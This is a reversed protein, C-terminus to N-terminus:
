DSIVGRLLPWEIEIRCGQGPESHARIRGELKQSVTAQAIFLGLGSRGLGFQTTVYPDFVRPLLTPSIGRGQDIVSLRMREANHGTSHAALLEAVIRVEGAEGEAYAHREINQFLQLLVETLVRPRVRMRAPVQLQLRLPTGPRVARDWAARLLLSADVEQPLETEEALELHKFTEVLALAREVNRSSLEAASACAELEGLLRSRSVAGGSLQGQLSKSLEAMTSSATLASGLPTNLEHAMGALLHGLTALKSSEILEMQLERQLELAEQLAANKLSLEHGHQEARLQLSRAHELEIMQLQATKDRQMAERLEAQGLDKARQLSAYAAEARGCALQWPALQELRSVLQRRMSWRESDAIVREMLAVASEFQGEAALCSAEAAWVEKEIRAAGAGAQRLHKQAGALCARAEGPLGRQLLLESLGAASNCAAIWRRQEVATQLGQQLAVLEQEPEGLRRHAVSVSVFLDVWRGRDGCAQYLQLAENMSQLAPRFQQQASLAQGLVRAFHAQEIAPAAADVRKSLRELLALAEPLRGFRLHMRCRLALMPVCVEAGFGQELWPMVADLVAEIQESRWTEGLMDGLHMALEVAFDSPGEKLVQEFLQRTPEILAEARCPETQYRLQEAQLWSRRADASFPLSPQTM